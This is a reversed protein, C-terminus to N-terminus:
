YLEVKIGAVQEVEARGIRMADHSAHMAGNDNYIASAWLSLDTMSTVWEEPMASIFTYIAGNGFHIAGNGAHMAGNANLVANAWCLPM